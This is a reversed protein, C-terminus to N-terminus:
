IALYLASIGRSYGWSGRCQENCQKKVEVERRLLTQALAFPQQAVTVPIARTSSQSCGTTVRSLISSTARKLM